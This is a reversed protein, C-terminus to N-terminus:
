ANRTKGLNGPIEKNLGIHNVIVRVGPIGVLERELTYKMKPNPVDGYLHLIYNEVLVDINHAGDLKGQDRLNTIRSYATPLIRDEAVVFNKVNIVGPLASLEAVLRDRQAELEVKGNIALVVGEKGHDEEIDVKVPHASWATSGITVVRELTARAQDLVERAPPAPLKAVQVTTTGPAAMPDELAWGMIGWLIFPAAIISLWPADPIFLLGIIEVLIAVSLIIPWLSPNPLHIHHEGEEAEQHIEQTVQLEDVSLGASRLSAEM